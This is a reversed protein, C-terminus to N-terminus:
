SIGKAEDWKLEDDFDKPHNTPVLRGETRDDLEEIMDHEYRLTNNNALQIIVKEITMPVEFSTGDMIGGVFKIYHPKDM